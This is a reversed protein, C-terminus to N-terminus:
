EGEGGSAPKDHIVPPMPVAEPGFIEALIEDTKRFMVAEQGPEAHDFGLLHLVGHAALLALEHEVPRGAQAAQREAQPLSIVVDGLSPAEGPPLVFEGGAGPVDGDRAVDAGFSLVDTVADEGRFRLNLARLEEDGTVTISVRDPGSRGEREIVTEAVRRLTKEAALGAYPEGVWVEIRATEDM